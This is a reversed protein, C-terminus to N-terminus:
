RGSKAFLRTLERALGIFALMWAALAVVFMAPPLPALFPLDLAAAMQRTAVTYMGLPFVAGWYLPDYRLPFRRVLHRWVGLVLLMPIWWTGTAWYFVTFGKLFPLLSALFPADSTNQVLRAGALTSIAMAGMNIWYPPALDGPSFAFFTYRYFILSIIWIYLMGGWLWMSLAFFNLELRLPQPWESAVLAALVAISQTSVVAILWAGTLGKELPPKEQKVTFATFITYTLGIWLATGLALFITAAALSRAILLFQNGLICSAAVSTFFGPGLRHDTMDAFFLGPYRVARLVTLCALVVYSMFNFAFLGNALVAFGFDWAAISIVGTAMVLAFYAPSLHKVSLIGERCDRTSLCLLSACGRATQGLALGAAYRLATQTPVVITM